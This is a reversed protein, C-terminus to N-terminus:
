NCSIKGDDEQAKSRFARGFGIDILRAFFSLRNSIWQIIIALIIWRMRNKQWRFALIARQEFQYFSTIRSTTMGSGVNV